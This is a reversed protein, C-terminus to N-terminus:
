HLCRCDRPGVHDFAGNRPDGVLLTGCVIPICLAGVAVGDKHRLHLQKRLTSGDNPPRFSAAAATLTLLLMVAASAADVGKTSAM